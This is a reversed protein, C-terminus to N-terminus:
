NSWLGFSWFKALSVADSTAERLDELTGIDLWATCSTLYATIDREPVSVDM